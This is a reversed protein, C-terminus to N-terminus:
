RKRVQDMPSGLIEHLKRMNDLGLKVPNFLNTQYLKRVLREYNSWSQSGDEELSPNPSNPQLQTSAQQKPDPTTAQMIKNNSPPSAQISNNTSSFLRTSYYSPLHRSNIINSRIGSAVINYPSIKKGCHDNCRIFSISSPKSTALTRLRHLRSFAMVGGGSGGSGLLTGILVLHVLLLYPSNISSIRFLLVPLKM